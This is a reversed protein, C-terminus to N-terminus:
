SHLDKDQYMSKYVRKLEDLLEEQRMAVYQQLVPESSPTAVIQMGLRHLFTGPQHVLSTIKGQCRVIADAIPLRFDVFVKGGKEFSLDGYIYTAFTFVGVGSPSIDALKGPIRHEGDYIEADIPERPQVRATMRHGVTTGAGMFETLIAQSKLVDVAVAKARYVESLLDSQVHTKGELAMCTAQYPHVKLAVYGQNITVIYGEYSIPIGRYANILRLPKEQTAIDDFQKMVDDLDKM